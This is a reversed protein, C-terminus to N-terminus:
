RARRPLRVTAPADSLNLAVSFEGGPERRSCLMVHGHSRAPEFTGASLVSNNRRLQILRRYLNLMSRDDERQTSVNCAAVNDGVPLWPTGSTFGANASADWRMPAREPDRNLGFGPVLREFPDRAEASPIPVNRMGIEDGAYFIPTGPLTFLLMAAVRAQADGIRTAIRCKDHSGLIWNPWGRDQIASLYADIAAAVSDVDWPVDLLVFNLPLHFLKRGRSSYFRGIRDTDGQVEGLLVRNPFEDTVERLEALYTLTENRDDTFTRKLREPPPQTDDWEPDVPDNRLLADEALVASADVSFCDVGRRMWYRLVDKMADRVAPNRWNLDPQEALFAHYYYQGTARDLTWASGGFRSLWNNPPGGGPSPDSWVYWDRQPSSRSSRSALFWPHQSSTHNPVFDLILRIDRAHLADVVADLHRMSGFLPDVGTFDSIDYGFDLMPSPYVPSLWVAGIGLDRLHDVRSRLGPLDGIGDGDSDQFSRPYIQYIVAGQWWPPHENLPM